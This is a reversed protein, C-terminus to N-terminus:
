GREAGLLKLFFRVPGHGVYFHAQVLEDGGLIVQIRGLHGVDGALRGSARRGDDVLELAPVVDPVAMVPHGPGDLTTVSVDPDLLYTLM